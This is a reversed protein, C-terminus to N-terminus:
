PKRPLSRGCGTDPPCRACRASSSPSPWVVWVLPVGADLYIRAKAAMEPRYQDPSAVEVALDPTFTKHTM